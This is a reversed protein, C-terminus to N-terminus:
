DTHIVSTFHVSVYSPAADEMEVDAYSILPQEARPSSSASSSNYVAPLLPTYLRNTKAAEAMLELKKQVATKPGGHNMKATHIPQWFIIWLLHDSQCKQANILLSTRTNFPVFPSAVHFLNTQRRSFFSSASV